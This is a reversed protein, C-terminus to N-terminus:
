PADVARATIRLRDGSRQFSGVVAMDFQLERRLAALDNGSRKAAQVIRTRDLIRVQLAARLDNTVTEAIGSSLWALPLDGSVNTFDLVALTPIHAAPNVAAPPAPEPAAPPPPSVSAIFRYGRRAVTQV